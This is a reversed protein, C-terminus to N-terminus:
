PRFGDIGNTPPQNSIVKRYLHTLENLVRYQISVFTSFKTMKHIECFEVAAEDIVKLFHIVLNYM